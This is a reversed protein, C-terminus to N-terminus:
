TGGRKPKKKLDAVEKELSKIRGYMNRVLRGLWESHPIAHKCAEIVADAEVDGVEHFEEATAESGL